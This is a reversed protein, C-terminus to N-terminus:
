RQGSINQRTHINLVNPASFYPLQWDMVTFYDELIRQKKSFYENLHHQDKTLGLLHNGKKELEGFFLQRLRNMMEYWEELTKQKAIFLKAKGRTDIFLDAWDSDSMPTDLIPFMFESAYPFSRYRLIPLYGEYQVTKFLKKSVSPIVPTSSWTASPQFNEDLGMYILNGEDDILRSQIFYNSYILKLKGEDLVLTGGRETTLPDGDPYSDKLPFGDERLFKPFNSNRTNASASNTDIELARIMEYQHASLQARLRYSWGPYSQILPARAGHNILVSQFQANFFTTPHIIAARQIPIQYMSNYTDTEPTILGLRWQEHGKIHHIKELDKRIANVVSEEALLEQILEPTVTKTARPFLPLTVSADAHVPHHDRVLSVPKRISVLGVIILVIGLPLSFTGIWTSYLAVILMYAYFLTHFLGFRFSEKATMSPNPSSLPDQRIKKIRYALYGQLIASLGLFIGLGIFLAKDLSM